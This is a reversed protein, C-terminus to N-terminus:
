KFKLCYDKIKLKIYEIWYYWDISWIKIVSKIKLKLLEIEKKFEYVKLWIKIDNM